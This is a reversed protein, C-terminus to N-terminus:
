LKALTGADLLKESRKAKEEIKKKKAKTENHKILSDLYDSMLINYNDSRLNYVVFIWKFNISHYYLCWCNCSSEQKNEVEFLAEKDLRIGSVKIETKERGGLM